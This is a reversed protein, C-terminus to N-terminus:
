LRLCWASHWRHKLRNACRLLLMRRQLVGWRLGGMGRSRCRRLLLGLGGRGRRVREHALEPSAEAGDAVRQVDSRM